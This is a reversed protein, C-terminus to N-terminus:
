FQVRLARLMDFTDICRAGFQPCANPIPIRKKATASGREQTVVICSHAIAHAVVWGDAGDAFDDKARNTYQGQERMWAILRRYERV